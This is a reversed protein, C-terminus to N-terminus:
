GVAHLEDAATRPRGRERAVAPLFEGRAREDVEPHGAVVCPRVGGAFRAAHRAAEGAGNAHRRPLQGAALAEVEDRGFALGESELPNAGPIFPGVLRHGAACVPVEERHLGLHAGRRNAQRVPRATHHRNTVSAAVSSCTKSGNKVVRAFWPQVPSPRAVTNLATCCAPPASQTSLAGPLPEHKVM